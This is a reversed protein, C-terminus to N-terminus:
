PAIRELEELDDLLRQLREPALGPDSYSHSLGRPPWVLERLEPGLLARAREPESTLDVRARVALLDRVVATVFPRFRVNLDYANRTLALLDVPREPARPSAAALTRLAEGFPAEATTPVETGIIARVLLPLALLAAVAAVVALTSSLSLSTVAAAAAVGGVGAACSAILTRRGV